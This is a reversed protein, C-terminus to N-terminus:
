PQEETFYRIFAEIKIEGKHTFILKKNKDYIFMTPIVKVDFYNSIKYDEDILLQINNFQNLQHYSYFDIVQKKQATTILLISVSGLDNQRDKIQKIEEHCFDCEPHMFLLLIPQNPLFETCFEIDYRVCAICFDNFTQINVEVM